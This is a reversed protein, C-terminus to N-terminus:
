DWRLNEVDQLPRAILKYVDEIIEIKSMTDINIIDLFKVEALNIIFPSFTFVNIDKNCNDKLLEVQKAPHFRDWNEMNNNPVYYVNLSTYIKM